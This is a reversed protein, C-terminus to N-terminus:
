LLVVYVLIGLVAGLVIWAWTPVAVGKLRTTPSPKAVIHGRTHPVFLEPGKQGVFYAQGRRKPGADSPM